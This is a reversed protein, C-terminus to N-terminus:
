KPMSVPANLGLFYVTRGDASLTEEFYRGSAVLTRRAGSAVNRIVLRGRDDYYLVSRGDHTWLPAIGPQADSALVRRSRPAVLELVDTRVVAVRQGTAAVSVAAAPSPMPMSWVRQGDARWVDLRFPYGTAPAEEREGAIFDGNWSPVTNATGAGLERVRSGDLRRFVIPGRGRPRQRHLALPVLVLSCALGALGAAGFLIGLRM